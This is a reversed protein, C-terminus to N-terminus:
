TNFVEWSLISLWFCIFKLLNIGQVLTSFFLISRDKESDGLYIEFHSFWSISYCVCANVYQVYLRIGYKLIILTWERYKLTHTQVPTHSGPSLFLSVCLSCENTERFLCLCFLFFFPFFPLLFIFLAIGYYFMACHFFYLSFLIRDM